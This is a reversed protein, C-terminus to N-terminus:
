PAETATANALRFDVRWPANAARELRVHQPALGSLAPQDNLHAILAAIRAPDLAQGDLVLQQAAADLHIRTLSIDPDDHRALSRLAAAFGTPFSAIRADFRAAASRDAGPMSIGAADADAAQADVTLAAQTARLMALGSTMTVAQARLAQLRMDASATAHWLLAHRSLLVVAILTLMVGLGPLRSRRKPPRLNIECASRPDTAPRMM